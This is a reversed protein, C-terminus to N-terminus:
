SEDDVGLYYQTIITTESGESITVVELIKDGFKKRKLKRGRFSKRIEEPQKVTELIWQKPIKRKIQQDQAHNSFKIM